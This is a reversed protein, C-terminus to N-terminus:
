AVDDPNNRISKGPRDAARMQVRFAPVSFTEKAQTIKAKATIRVLDADEAIMEKVNAKFSDALKKTQGEITSRGRELLSALQKAAAARESQAQRQSRRTLELSKQLHLIDEAELPLEASLRRTRLTREQISARLTTLQELAADYHEKLSEYRIRSAEEEKLALDATERARKV